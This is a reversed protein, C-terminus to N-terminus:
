AGASLWREYRDPDSWAGTVRDFEAAEPAMWELRGARAGTSSAEAIDPDLELVVADDPVPLGHRPVVAVGPLRALAADRLRPSAYFGVDHLQAWKDAGMVVLDYGVAIDAILQADTVVVGLWTRHAAVSRVVAVRDEFTPGTGPEKGLPVQSIALDVRALNTQRIAAEAIALHAVTPPNFSGPYVGVLGM